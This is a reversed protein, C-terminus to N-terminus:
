GVYAAAYKEAFHDPHYSEKAQRLGLIGMDEERNVFETDAFSHRIFENNIAQYLGRVNPNAKEIHILAIKDNLYEGISFAEVRGYMVIAGGSLGLEHWHDFLLNIAVLEDDAGDEKDEHNNLWAAATDRCLPIIDDTIPVYEYNTNQMRFQNLHNKKQRFKKGALHILDDTKYIYEFNDRDPTFEFQNPYLEELLTKVEASVGHFVFPIHNAEYWERAKEVGDMFKAEKSAFPPLLFPHELKGGGKIFLIGRDEAWGIGYADQWM